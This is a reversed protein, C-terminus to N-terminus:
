AFIYNYCNYFIIYIYIYIDWVPHGGGWFFFCFGYIKSSTIHTRNKKKPPDGQLKNAHRRVLLYFTKILLNKIDTSEWHYLKDFSDFYKWLEYRFIDVMSKWTYIYIHTHTHTYTHTHTCSWESSFLSLRESVTRLFRKVTIKVLKSGLKGTKGLMSPYKLLYIITQM